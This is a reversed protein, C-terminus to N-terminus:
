YEAPQPASRHDLIPIEFSITAGPGHRNNEAFIRGGHAKIISRGISLGLGLGESKNTHFSEFIRELNAPPIGTGTDRVCVAVSRGSRRTVVEVCKPGGRRAETADMANVILNILVQQIHVADAHVSPIPVSSILLSIGRRQAQLWLLDVAETAVTNLNVSRRILERDQLLARTRRVVDSARLDDKRIDEIIDVLAESSAQKNRLLFLATEANNLIAALPQTVEHTIAATIEGITALRAARALARAADKVARRDTMEGLAGIMHWPKGSGDRVLIGKVRVTVRDDDQGQLTFESQWVSENGVAFRQLDCLVRDRDHEDIFHRWLHWGKRRRTSGFFRAGNVSFRLLDRRVNWHFIVDSTARLILQQRETRIRLRVKAKKLAARTRQLRRCLTRERAAQRANLWVLLLSCPAIIFLSISVRHALLCVFLPALAAAGQALPAWQVKAPVLTWRQAKLFSDIRLPDISM